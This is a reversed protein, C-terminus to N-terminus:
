VFYEFEPKNRFTHCSEMANLAKAFPFLITITQFKDEMYLPGVMDFNTYNQSCHSNHASVDTYLCTFFM